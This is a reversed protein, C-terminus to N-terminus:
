NQRNNQNACPFLVKFKNLNIKEMEKNNEQKNVLKYIGQCNQCLWELDPPSHLLGFCDFHYQASCNACRIIQGDTSDECLSCQDNSHPDLLGPQPQDHMADIPERDPGGNDKSNSTGSTNLCFM